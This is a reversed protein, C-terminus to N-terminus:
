SRGFSLTFEKGAVTQRFAELLDPYTQAFVDKFAQTQRVQAEYEGSDAEHALIWRTPDPTDELAQACACLHWLVQATTPLASGVYSFTACRGAYLLSVLWESSHESLTLWPERDSAAQIPLSRVYQLFPTFPEQADEPALLLPAIRQMGPLRQVRERLHPYPVMHHRLLDGVLSERDLALITGERGTPTAFHTAGWFGVEAYWALLTGERDGAFRDPCWIMCTEMCTEQDYALALQLRTHATAPALRGAQVRQWSLPSRSVLLQGATVLCDEWHQPDLPRTPAWYVLSDEAMQALPKSLDLEPLPYGLAWAVYLQNNQQTRSPRKSSRM